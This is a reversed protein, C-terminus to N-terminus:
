RKPTRVRMQIKKKRYYYISPAATWLLDCNVKLPRRNKNYIFVSIPLKHVDESKFMNMASEEANPWIFFSQPNDVDIKKSAVQGRNTGIDKIITKIAYLKEVKKEYM